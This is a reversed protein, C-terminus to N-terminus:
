LSERPWRGIWPAPPLGLAADRPMLWTDAVHARVLWWWCAWAQRLACTLAFVKPSPWALRQPTM